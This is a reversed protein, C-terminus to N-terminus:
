VTHLTWGEYKSRLREWRRMSREVKDGERVYLTFSQEQKDFAYAPTARIHDGDCAIQCIGFDFRAAQADFSCTGPTVFILNIPLGYEARVEVMGTVGQGLPGYDGDLVMDIFPHTDELASTVDLMDGEYDLFIDIDKIPKGNDLDRLCGGGIIATPSFAQVRSLVGLWEAPVDEITIM